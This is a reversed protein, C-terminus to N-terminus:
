KKEGFLEFPKRFVPLKTTTIVPEEINGRVEVKVIASGLGKALSELMSPEGQMQGSGFAAFELDLESNDLNVKGSGQLATSSGSMLVQEFVLENRRIFSRISMDKFFFDSPKNRNAATLVKGALSRETVQVDNVGINIRGIRNSNDGLAGSMVFDCNASGSYLKESPSTDVAHVISELELSDFIMQLMYGSGKRGPYDLSCQGTVKGGCCDSIFQRCVFKKDNPEYKGFAQLNSLPRGKVLLSRGVIKANAESLGNGTEYSVHMSVNANLDSILGNRGLNCNTLKAEIPVKFRRSGDDKQPFFQGNKISLDMRGEAEVQNFIDSGTGSFAEAFNDDIIVDNADITFWGDMALGDVLDVKSDFHINGYKVGRTDSSELSILLKNADLEIRGTIHEIPWVFKEFSVNTNICDIAIKHGPCDAETAGINLDATVNVIGGVNLPGIIKQATDPLSELLEDDLEIGVAELSLCVKPEDEARDGPWINGSVRVRGDGRIGTMERLIVVDPTLDARLYVDNLQYPFQKYVLSEGRIEAKAIYEVLRKGVENPFVNIEVDTVANVTFQEYFERQRGPLATKLQSDIPINEAKVVINYQPRESKTETVRGNLTIKKGDYASVVNVFEIVGPEAIVKGTLNNLQYPFHQYVASAGDLNVVLNATKAQGPRKSLQQVIRGSGSPTFAFWLEKQKTNLARYLDDDFQMNESTIRVDYEMEDGFGSSFGNINLDVKGHSCRLDELLVSDQTVLLQGQLHELSYPFDRYSVTVDSCKVTGDCLFKGGLQGSFEIDVEGLGNPRYKTFFTKLGEGVVDLVAPSYVLKNAAYEDAISLDKLRIRGTYETAHKPWKAACNIDVSGGDMEWHFQSISIADNGYEAEFKINKMDWGNGFVAAGSRLVDGGLSIQGKASDWIGRITGGRSGQHHFGAYFAYKGVSLRVPKLEWDIESALIKEVESELIKKGQGGTIRTIKLIGQRCKITPLV